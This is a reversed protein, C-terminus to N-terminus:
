RASLATSMIGKGPNGSFNLRRAQRPTGRDSAAFGGTEKAARSFRPRFADRRRMEGPRASYRSPDSLRGAVLDRFRLLLPGLFSCRRSSCPRRLWCSRGDAVRVLGFNRISMQLEGHGTLRRWSLCRTSAGVPLRPRHHFASEWRPRRPRWIPMALVALRLRCSSGSSFILMMM